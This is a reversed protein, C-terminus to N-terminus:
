TVRRKIRGFFGRKKQEHTTPIQTPPAEMREELHGQMGLMSALNEMATATWPHNDGLARKYKELVDKQMRAAEVLQGQDRLTIALDDMTALTNLHDDGLIRRFKELVENQM